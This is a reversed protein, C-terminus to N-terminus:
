NLSQISIGIDQLNLLPNQQMIHVIRIEKISDNTSKLTFPFTIQKIEGIGHGLWNGDKDALYLHITDQNIKLWLDRYEFSDKHRIGIKYDYTSTNTISKTPTFFLTDNKYWGTKNVPQYSHYYTQKNCTTLFLALYCIGTYRLIKILLKQRKKYMWQSRIKNRM